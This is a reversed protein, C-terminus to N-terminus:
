QHPTLTLVLSPRPCPPCPLRVAADDVFADGNLVIVTGSAGSIAGGTEGYGGLASNHVFTDHGSTLVGGVDYIAGGFRQRLAPSVWPVPVLPLCVQGKEPSTHSFTHLAEGSFPFFCVATFDSAFTDGQSNM